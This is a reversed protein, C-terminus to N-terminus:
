EIIEISGNPCQVECARCVLCEDPNIVHCKEEKIEFVDVPCIDVCTGCGDCKEHDV